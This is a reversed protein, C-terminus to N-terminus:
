SARSGDMLELGANFHFKLLTEILYSMESFVELVM